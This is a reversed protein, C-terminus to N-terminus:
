VTIMKNGTIQRQSRARNNPTSPTSRPRSTAGSAAAVTTVSAAALRDCASTPVVPTTGTATTLPSAGANPENEASGAPEETKEALATFPTMINLRRRAASGIWEYRGGEIPRDREFDYNWKAM